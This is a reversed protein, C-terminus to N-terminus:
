DLHYLPWSHQLVEWFFKFKIDLCVQYVHSLIIARSFALRKTCWHFRWLILHALLLKSLTWKLIRLGRSQHCHARLEQHLILNRRSTYRLVLFKVILCKNSQISDPNSFLSSNFVASKSIQSVRSIMRQQVMKWFKM